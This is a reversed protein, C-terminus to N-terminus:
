NGYLEKDLLILCMVRAEKAQEKTLEIGYFELFRTQISELEWNDEEFEQHTM